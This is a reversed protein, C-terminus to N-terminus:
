NREYCIAHLETILSAPNTFSLLADVGTTNQSYRCDCSPVFVWRSRGGDAARLLWVQAAADAKQKGLRM